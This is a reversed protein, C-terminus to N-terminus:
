SRRLLEQRLKSLPVYKRNLRTRWFTWGNTPKGTVSAAAASLSGYRTGNLEVEEGRLRAVHRQGNARAVLEADPALLGATVLDGISRTPTTAKPKEAAEPVSPEGAGVDSPWAGAPVRPRRGKRLGPRGGLVVYGTAQKGVRNLLDRATEVSAVTTHDLRAVLVVDDVAPFFRLADGSEGVPSTDILVYSAQSRAQAILDPLRRGLSELTARDPDSIGPVLKIQPRGPVPVLAGTLDSDGKLIAWLGKEGRVGLRSALEPKVLDLDLLVVKHEASSLELAFDILCTTTGDRTSPSTFLIARHQGERAALQFELSRFSALAAPPAALTSPRREGLWTPEARPVRTLIPTTDVEELEAESRVTRPGLLEKLLAAVSALVLGALFALIVILWAPLGEASASGALRSLDTSPDGSVSLEALAVIRSEIDTASPDATGLQKRVQDLRGILPTAQDRLTADRVELASAAFTNALQVAEKANGARATVDLINSQGEPEIDVQDLVSRATRGGGLRRATAEAAQPSELLSAATQMNRTPDGSDRIVPLGLFEDTQPLPNILVRATSKYEPTRQLLWAVSALLTAWVVVAV